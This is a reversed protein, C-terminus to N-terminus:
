VFWTIVVYREGKTVPMIEHPYMFNSPFMLVSGKPARMVIERDFFGWEGGEYDDNLAFSCSVARNHEMSSDIHQAYFQGEGYRLLHYGTDEKIRVSSFKNTYAQIAKGACLFLEVDLRKRLIENQGVVYQNSIGVEQVDRISLNLGGTTKGERWETNNKYEQLLADCLDLPVVNKEVVIYDEIKM